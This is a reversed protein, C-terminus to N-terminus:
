ILPNIIQTQEEIIQQHHLNESYLTECNNLLATAVM